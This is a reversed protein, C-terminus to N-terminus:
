QNLNNHGDDHHCMCGKCEEFTKRQPLLRDGEAGCRPCKPKHMMCFYIIGPIVGFLLLVILLGINIGSTVTVNQCCDPCYRIQSSTM